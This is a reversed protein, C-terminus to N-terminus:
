RRVPPHGPHFRGAGFSSLSLLDKDEPVSHGWRVSCCKAAHTAPSALLLAHAM